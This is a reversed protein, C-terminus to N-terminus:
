QSERLGGTCVWAGLRQLFASKRGTQDKLFGCQVGLFVLVCLLKQSCPKDDTNGRQCDFLCGDRKGVVIKCSRSSTDTDWFWIILRLAKCAVVASSLHARAKRSYWGLNCISCPRSPVCVRQLDTPSPLLSFTFNLLTLASDSWPNTLDETLCSWIACLPVEAPSPTGALSGLSLPSSLHCLSVAFRPFHLVDGTIFGTRSFSWRSGCIWMCMGVFQVPYLMRQVDRGGAM